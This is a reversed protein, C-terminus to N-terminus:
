RYKTRVSRGVVDGRSRRKSYRSRQICVTSGSKDKYKNYNFKVGQFKLYKIEDKVIEKPLRYEPIGYALVGGGKHFAEFISVDYGLSNLYKAVVLGSPGSGIIAVKKGNPIANVPEYYLGNKRVYDTVFREILGISIPDWKKGLVCAGECQNEQPCIRCTVAPIPNYKKIVEYAEQFREERVLRIIEPINAHVRCGEVCKPKACQLCRRAEKLVNDLTFGNNVEDFTKQREKPDLLEPEQSLKQISKRPTSTETM